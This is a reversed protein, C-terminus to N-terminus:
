EGPLQHLMSDGGLGAPGHLHSQSLMKGKRCRVFQRCVTTPGAAASVADQEVVESYMSM